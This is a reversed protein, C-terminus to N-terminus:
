FADEDDVPAYQQPRAVAPAAAGKAPKHNRCFIGKDYKLMNEAQKQSSVVQGNGSTYGNFYAPQQCVDCVGKLAPAGEKNTYSEFTRGGFDVTPNPQRQQRQGGGSTRPARPQPAPANARLEEARANSLAIVQEAVQRGVRDFRGLLLEIQDDPTSAGFSVSGFVKIPEYQAISVTREFSIALRAETEVPQAQIDNAKSAAM